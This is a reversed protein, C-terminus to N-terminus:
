ITGDGISINGPGSNANFSSQWSNGDSAPGIEVASPVAATIDGIGQMLDTTQIPQMATDQEFYNTLPTAESYMNSRATVRDSETQQPQQMDERNNFYGLARIADTASKAAEAGADALGGAASAMLQAAQGILGQRLAVAQKRREFDTDNVAQVEAFAIRDALVFINAKTQAMTVTLEQIAHMYSKGHHRQRNVELEKFKKAFAGAVPAWMRGAYRKALVTQSDWKRPKTFENLFQIERPWYVDRLHKQEQEEISIARESIRSLKKYNSIADRSNIAAQAVTVGEKIGASLRAGLFRATEAIIYGSDDVTVAM